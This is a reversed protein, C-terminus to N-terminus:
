EFYNELISNKRFVLIRPYSFLFSGNPAGPQSHTPPAHSKIEPDHTWAEHQAYLKFFSINGKTSWGLTLFCCFIYIKQYSEHQEILKKAADWELVIVPTERFFTNKKKKLIYKKLM